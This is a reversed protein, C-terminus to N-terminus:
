RQAVLLDLSVTYTQAATSAGIGTMPNFTVAVTILRARSDLVAFPATGCGPAVGCDTVRVTRSYGSFGSIAGSSEDGLATCSTGNVCPSVTCTTTSPAANGSSTGLCDVPPSASTSSPCLTPDTGTPCAGTWTANRGQELRQQALFTATTLQKGQQIGYGALPMVIALGVLGVAIIVSAVLLEALTFGREDRTM